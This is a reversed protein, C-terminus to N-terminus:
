SGDMDLDVGGVSVKGEVLKERDPTLWTVPARNIPM